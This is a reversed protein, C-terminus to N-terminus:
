QGTESAATLRVSRYVGRHGVRFLSAAAQRAPPLRVKWTQGPDLVLQRDTKSGALALRLVYRTRQHEESRVGLVLTSSRPDRTLWLSTYGPASSSPLPTRALVVAAAAFGAAALALVFVTRSRPVLFALRPLIPGAPAPAPSPGAAVVVVAAVTVLALAATWSYLRLGFPTLYLLISVAAAAVLSLALALVIREVAEPARRRFIASTLAYGPLFVVLPLVLIARLPTWGGSPLTSGIVALATLALILRSERRQLGAWVDRTVASMRGPALHRRRAALVHGALASLFIGATGVSRRLVSGSRSLLGSPGAGPKSVLRRGSRRTRRAALVDEYAQEVQPVIRDATFDAARLQAAAGLKSRLRKDELVRELAARLAEVDGPPVLIGNEGDTIIDRLGGIDSAIVPRGASMAELAVLGFGEKMVSPVVAVTCRRFADLVVEHPQAGVARVRGFPAALLLPSSAREPGVVPALMQPDIVRGILVLPPADELLGHAELLVAVGKDPSADGAFAVFETPLGSLREKEGPSSAGTPMFNPILRHGRGQDGHLGAAEAVARSVPLFMDVLAREPAAMAWNGLTVAPGKAAGYYSASCRLCKAPGPGTCARGRRILRKNACILRHDHLTVVLGPGNRRKLPLVSRILWDHGHVIDPKDRRILRRLEAAAGPDVVPPSHPRSPDVYGRFFRGATSRIPYVRVGSPHDGSPSLGEQQLTAVAVHHGRAKLEISLDEVVREQGGITPPFFQTVMLIRV